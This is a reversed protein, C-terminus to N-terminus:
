SGIAVDFRRVVPPGQLDLKAARVPIDSGGGVVGWM